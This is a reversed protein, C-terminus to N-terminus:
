RTGETYCALREGGAAAATAVCQDKTEILRRLAERDAVVACARRAFDWMSPTVHHRADYESAGLEADTLGLVHYLENQITARLAQRSDLAVIALAAGPRPTLGRRRVYAGGHSDYAELREVFLVAVPAGGSPIAGEIAALATDSPGFLRLVPAVDMVPGSDWHVCIKADAFTRAVGQLAREVRARSRHAKAGRVVSTAFGAGDYARWTLRLPCCNADNAPQASALLPICVAIAVILWVDIRTADM